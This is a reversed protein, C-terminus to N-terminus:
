KDVLNLLNDVRNHLAHAMSRLQSLENVNDDSFLNDSALVKERAELIHKVDRPARDLISGGENLARLKLHPLPRQRRLELSLMNIKVLMQQISECLNKIEMVSHKVTALTAEEVTKARQAAERADNMLTHIRDYFQSIDGGAALLGALEPNNAAHFQPNLTTGDGLLHSVCAGWMGLSEKELARFREKLEATGTIGQAACQEPFRTCIEELPELSEQIIPLTNTMVKKLMKVFDPIFDHLTDLDELSEENVASMSILWNRRTHPFTPFPERFAQQCLLFLLKQLQPHSPHTPPPQSAERQPDAATGPRPLTQTNVAQQVLTTWADVAVPQRRPLRLPLRHWQAVLLQSLRSFGAWVGPLAGPRGDGRQGTDDPADTGIRHLEAAFQEKDLFQGSETQRYFDLFTENELNERYKKGCPLGSFLHKILRPFTEERRALFREIARARAQYGTAYLTHPAVFLNRLWARRQDMTHHDRPDKVNADMEELVKFFANRVGTENPFTLGWLAQQVAPRYFFSKALGIFTDEWEKMYNLLEEAMQADLMGQRAATRGFLLWPLGDIAFALFLIVTMWIKGQVPGEHANLFASLEAVNKQRPQQVSGLAFPGSPVGTAPTFSDGIRLMPLYKEASKDVQVLVRLHSESLKDLVQIIQNLKTRNANLAQVIEQLHQNVRKNDFTYIKQITALSLSEVHMLRDLAARNKEVLATTKDLDTAYLSAVAQLKQAIPLDFPIGAEQLLQDMNRAFQVNRFAHVVDSNGPVFGGNVIFYKAWYRPGKRPDASTAKGTLEEEPIRTWKEGVETVVAQLRARLDHLSRPHTPDVPGDPLGLAQDMQQQVTALQESLADRTSLLVAISDYNASLSFLTLCLALGMWRPQLLFAARLGPWVAGMEAAGRLLRARFDLVAITLLLSGLTALTMQLLAGQSPTFYPSLWGTVGSEQLLSGLARYSTFASVVLLMGDLLPKAGVLLGGLGAMLRVFLPQSTERWRARWTHSLGTREPANASLEELLHSFLALAGEMNHKFVLKTLKYFPNGKLLSEDGTHLAARFADLHFRVQQIGEAQGRVARVKDAINDFKKKQDGQRLTEKAEKDLQTRLQEVTHQITDREAQGPTFHVLDPGYPLEELHTTSEVGPFLFVPDDIAKDPAFFRDVITGYTELLPNKAEKANDM